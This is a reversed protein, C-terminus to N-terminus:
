HTAEPGARDAAEAGRPAPRAYLYGQGYRAGAALLVEAEDRAEIGEAVISAGMGNAIRVMARLIEQKILNRDIGRVLSLDIKVYDPRVRELLDHGWFGTGVDDLAVGLGHERAIRVATLFSELDADAAREPFELVVPRGVASVRSLDDAAGTTASVLSQPVVNLFLTGSPGIGASACARIARDRCARDLDLTVGLRDSAAFLARPMELPGPGPGRSLAEYGLVAESRLDVVPQFVTRIEAERLIRDLEVALGRERRQRRREPLSRARELALAVRREFRYFPDISLLAHGVRIELPSALGDLEPAALARSLRRALARSYRTLLAPTAEGGAGDGSVFVGFRSGAVADIAVLTDAPLEHGVTADIGRAVRAVVRDYLQWGYLAEVVDLGAIEVHLVGLHRHGDLRERLEAVLLAVVPLGTIRDHLVSRLRIADLREM